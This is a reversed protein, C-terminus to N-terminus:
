DTKGTKPLVTLYLKPDVTTSRLLAASPTGNTDYAIVKVDSHYKSTDWACSYVGDGDATTDTCILVNDIYFEVKSIGDDSEPKVKIIYPNTTITQGNEINIM